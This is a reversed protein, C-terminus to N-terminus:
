HDHNDNSGYEISQNLSNVFELVVFLLHFSIIKMWIFNGSLLRM